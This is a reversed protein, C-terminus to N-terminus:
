REATTRRLEYTHHDSLSAGVVTGILAGTGAGLGTSFLVGLTHDEGSPANSNGYVLGVIGGAALGAFFGCLGGLLRNSGTTLRHIGSLPVRTETGNDTNRWSASDTEIQFERVRATTGDPFYVTVEEGRLRHNLEPVSLAGPQFTPTVVTSPNCGAYVFALLM